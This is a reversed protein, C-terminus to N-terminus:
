AAWLPTKKIRNIWGSLTIKMSSLLLLPCCYYCCAFWLIHQLMWSSSFVDIISGILIFSLYFSQVCVIALCIVSYREWRCKRLVFGSASWCNESAQMKHDFPQIFLKDGLDASWLSAGNNKGSVIYFLYFSIWLILIGAYRLERLLCKQDKPIKSPLRLFM